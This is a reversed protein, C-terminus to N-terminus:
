NAITIGLVARPDATPRRLIDAGADHAQAIFKEEEVELAFLDALTEAERRARESDSLAADDDAARTLEAEIAAILPERMLWALVALADPARVMLAPSPQGPQPYVTTEAKVKPWDIPEDFEITKFINPAGRAALAEIEARVRKKADASLHPASRIAHLEARLEQQEKRVRDIATIPSEGKKLAAPRDEIPVLSVHAPLSRLYPEIMNDVLSSIMQARHGRAQFAADVRQFEATVSDARKKAAIFRPDKLKEDPDRRHESDLQVSIRSLQRDADLKAELTENRKGHIANLMAHADDRDDRLALLRQRATDPLRDAQDGHIIVSRVIGEMHQPQAPTNIRDVTKNWSNATNTM